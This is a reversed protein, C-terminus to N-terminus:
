PYIREGTETAIVSIASAPCAEAIPVLQEQPATAIVTAVDEVRFVDPALEECDGHAICASEDIVPLYTM